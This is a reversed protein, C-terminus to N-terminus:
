LHALVDSLLDDLLPVSWLPLDVVVTPYFRPLYSGFLLDPAVFFPGSRAWFLLCVRGGSIVTRRLSSSFSLVLSPVLVTLFM